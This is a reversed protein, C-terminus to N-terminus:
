NFAELFLTQHTHNPNQAMRTLNFSQPFVSSDIKSTGKQHSHPCEFM